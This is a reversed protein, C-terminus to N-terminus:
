SPVGRVRSARHELWIVSRGSSAREELIQGSILCAGGIGVEHLAGVPIEYLAGIRVEHLAGAPIEDLAGRQIEDLADAM